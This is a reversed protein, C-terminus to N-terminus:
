RKNKTVNFRNSMAQTVEDWFAAPDNCNELIINGNLTLNDGTPVLASTFQPKNNTTALNRLLTYAQETNLVYEPASPTGHLMALGTYTVPGNLIGTSYKRYDSGDNGGFYGSKAREAEAKAHAAEMGKIDGKAKAAEYEKKASQITNNSKESEKADKATKTTVGYNTGKYSSSSSKSSSSSSTSGSTAGSTSGFNSSVLTSKAGTPSYANAYTNGTSTTVSVSGDAQKIWLSGDSAIYTGGTPLSKAITIGNASTISYPKANGGSSNVPVGQEDVYAYNLLEEIEQSSADSISALYAIITAMDSTVPSMSETFSGTISLCSKDIAGKLVDSSEIMQSLQEAQQSSLQTPLNSSLAILYQATDTTINLEKQALANAMTQANQYARKFNSVAESAESGSLGTEEVIRKIMEENSEVDAYAYDTDIKAQRLILDYVAQKIDGQQWHEKAVQAYNVFGQKDAYKALNANGVVNQKDNMVIRYLDGEPTPNVIDLYDDNRPLFSEANLTQVMQTQAEYLRQCNQTYKDLFSDFQSNYDSFAEIQNDFFDKLNTTMYEAFDTMDAKILEEIEAQTQVGLLEKLLRQQQLREYESYKTQLM